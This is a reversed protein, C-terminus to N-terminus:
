FSKSAKSSMYFIGRLHGRLLREIYGKLMKKIAEWTCYNPFKGTACEQLLQTLPISQCLVIKMAELLKRLAELITNDWTCQL